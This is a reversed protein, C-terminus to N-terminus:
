DEAITGNRKETHFLKYKVQNTRPTLFQNSMLTSRLCTTTRQCMLPMAGYKSMGRRMYRCSNFKNICQYGTIEFPKEESSFIDKSAAYFILFQFIKGLTVDWHLM